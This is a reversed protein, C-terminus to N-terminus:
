WSRLISSYFDSGIGINRCVDKIRKNRIDVPYLVADNLNNEINYILLFTKSLTESLRGELQNTSRNFKIEESLEKPHFGAFFTVIDEQEEIEVYFFGITYLLGEIIRIANLKNDLLFDTLNEIYSGTIQQRIYEKAQYQKM